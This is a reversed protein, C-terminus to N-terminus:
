RGSQRRFPVVNLVQRVLVTAVPGNGPSWGWHVEHYLPFELGATQRIVDILAQAILEQTFTGEAEAVGGDMMVSMQKQESM